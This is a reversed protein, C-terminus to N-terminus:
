GHGCAAPDAKHMHFKQFLYLAYHMDKRSIDHGAGTLLTVSQGELEKGGAVTPQLLFAHYPKEQEDWSKCVELTYFPQRLLVQTTDQKM